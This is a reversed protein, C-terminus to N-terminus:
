TELLLLIREGWIFTKRALSWMYKATKFTRFIFRTEKVRVATIQNSAIEDYQGTPCSPQVIAQHAARALNAIM